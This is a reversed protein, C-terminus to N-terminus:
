LVTGAILEPNEFINGVVEKENKLFDSLLFTVLEKYEPHMFEIRFSGFKFVVIGKITQYITERGLISYGNPCNSFVVDFIDGEYIDNENKDLLGTFQGITEPKVKTYEYHSIGDLVEGITDNNLLNGFRFISEDMDPNYEEIIGRFKIIRNM